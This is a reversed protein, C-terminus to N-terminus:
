SPILLLLPSHFKRGSDNEYIKIIFNVGKNARFTVGQVWFCPPKREFWNIKLIFEKGKGLFLSEIVTLWRESLTQNGQRHYWRFRVLHRITGKHKICCDEGHLLVFLPYTCTYPQKAEHITCKSMLFVSFAYINTM